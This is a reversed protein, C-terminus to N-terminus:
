FAMLFDQYIQQNSRVCIIGKEINCGIDYLFALSKTYNGHDKTKEIMSNIM